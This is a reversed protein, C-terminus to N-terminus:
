HVYGLFFVDHSLIKLTNWLGDGDLCLKCIELLFAKKEEGKKERNIKLNTSKWYMGHPIQRQIPFHKRICKSFLLGFSEPGLWCKVVTTEM